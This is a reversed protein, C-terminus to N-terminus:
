VVADPPNCNCDDGIPLILEIAEAGRYAVAEFTEAFAQRDNTANLTSDTVEIGLDLTGGDLFFFTGEPYLLTNATAPFDNLAGAAQAGFIQLDPSWIPRVNRGSLFRSILADAASFMEANDGPVQATLSSRMADLVWMPAIWNIAQENLIRYRSRLGAVARDLARLANRATGTGTNPDAAWTVDAAAAQMDAFLTQEAVQDHMVLLLDLRSRWFEPNFKAQFNGITLCRVIADVKAETETDCELAPCGKTETLPEADTEHTWVTIPSPVLASLDGLTAAPMFRLGGRDANFAPLANRIPRGRNGFIPHSFDAPLPDCIGGAAVIARPETLRNVMRTNEEVSMGFQRDEPYNFELRILAQRGQRGVHRNFRHFIDSAGDLDLNPDGVAGAAPGMGMARVNSEPEPEANAQVRASARRVAAALDRSRDSRTTTEAPTEPEQEPPDADDEDDGDDDDSEAALGELLAAAESAERERAETRAALEQDIDDIAQRITRGAELDRDEGSLVEGLLARLQERGQRLTPDDPPEDGGIRGIMDLLNQLEDV